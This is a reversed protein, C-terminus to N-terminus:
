GLFFAAVGGAMLPVTANDDIRDSSVEALAGALGALIAIQAMEAAGLSPHVLGLFAFGALAASLAFAITGAFSKEGVLKRKGWRKGVLSAVPDGVALVVAGLEIAHKPLVLVGLVLAGLFWTAAPIRHAEGPRSIMGFTGDVWLRNLRPFVRRLLDMGLFTSLVLSGLFLILPKDFVLEYLAVCALGNFLHFINRAYNKPKIHGLRLGKPVKLRMTRVHALMAEYDHTLSKWRRRLERAKPKESLEHGYAKLNAAAQDLARTVDSALEARSRELRDGMEVRSHEFRTALDTAWVRLKEYRAQLEPSAHILEASRVLEYLEATLRVLEDGPARQVLVATAM